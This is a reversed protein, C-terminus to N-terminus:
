STCSTSGGGGGIRREICAHMSDGEMQTHGVILYKQIITVKYKVTLMVLTNSLTCNRYQYGCDGSWLILVNKVM